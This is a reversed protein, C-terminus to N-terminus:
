AAEELPAWESWNDSLSLGNIYLVLEDNQGAKPFKIGLKGSFRFTWKPFLPAYKDMWFDFGFGNRLSITKNPEDLDAGLFFNMQQQQLGRGALMRALTEWKEGHWYYKVRLFTPNIRHSEFSQDISVKMTKPLNNFGDRM